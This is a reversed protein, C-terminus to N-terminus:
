RSWGAASSPSLREMAQRVVALSMPCVDPCWTYGFFVVALQDDDLQRLSFEGETSPLAIPGGEPEGEVPSTAQLYLAVGVAVLLALASALGWRMGRRTMMM